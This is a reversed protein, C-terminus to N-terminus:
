HAQIARMAGGGAGTKSGGVAGLISPASTTKTSTTSTITKTVIIDGEKLGSIIETSTDDALGITVEVQEPLTESTSGQTGTVADALPSNFVEVYNVDNKNKIASSPVVLVDQAIDTIVTASVSMGPKIRVDDVDLSLSVNYSVVGSSVTGVSDIEAVKGTISLEDIADFTITAKQGLKIKAIDVENLSITVLKQKTILTGISGSASQGVRATLSAIVGDFPARIFYDEYANQKTEVNLESQRIDLEDAGALTDKLSQTDEDISNINSFISKVYGNVSDAWATLNKQTTTAETSSTDDLSNSTYDFSSQALKVANSITKATDLAKSIVNKIEEDSSSLSLSKYLKTTKELSDKSDWYAKESLDIKDKGARGLQMKNQSGLYGNHLDELGTVITEVEIVFTSVNNWGDTYSKKLNNEKQLNTLTDPKKLKALSIQANELAIKADRSDLSAILSGKKVEQGVSAPLYTIDGSVRTNIDITDSAKVQGSGSVSSIVTGKSAESTVYRTEATSKSKFFLYYSAIVVIILIIISWIKHGIVFSKIKAFFNLNNM